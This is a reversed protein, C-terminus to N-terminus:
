LKTVVEGLTDTDFGKPVNVDAGRVFGVSVGVIKVNPDTERVAKAVAQGDVGSSTNPELNGDITVVNVGKKVMDTEIKKLAEKRTKATLAVEHGKENLYWEIWKQWDEDNEVVMVRANEPSM